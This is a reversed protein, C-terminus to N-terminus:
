FEPDWDVVILNAEFDVSVVFEPQVFPIMRERDGQVVLVDNSGTSFLHSARGLEVGDVTRV